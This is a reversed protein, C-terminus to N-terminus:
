QAFTQFGVMVKVPGVDHRNKISAQIASLPTLTDALANDRAMWIGVLPAILTLWCSIVIMHLRPMTVGIQLGAAPTRVVFSGVALDHLSQRTHRNFVYLYAITGLGGFM